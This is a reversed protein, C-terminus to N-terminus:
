RSTCASGAYIFLLTHYDNLGWHYGCMGCAKIILLQM